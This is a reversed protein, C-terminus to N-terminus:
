SWWSARVPPASRPPAMKGEQRRPVGFPFRRPHDEGSPGCRGRQTVRWDAPDGVAERPHRQRAGPRSDGAANRPAHVAGNASQLSLVARLLPVVDYEERQAKINYGFQVLFDLLFIPPTLASYGRPWRGAM